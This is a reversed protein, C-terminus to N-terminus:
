DGHAAVEEYSGDHVPVLSRGSLRWFFVGMWLGGIGVLATFDALHPAPSKPNFAPVVQWYMDVINSIFLIIAVIAITKSRRTVRRQLLLLFPIAFQCLVLFLAVGGWGGNQRSLYWPIENKLNGTWIILYQDFSLYTWLMVFALLLNGADNWHLPTVFSALTTERSLFTGIFVMLAMATLAGILMFVMGYITSFWHPELSMVWDISAGTLILGWLVLGPGSLRGCRSLLRKDLTDDYQKAWRNLLISFILFFAFYVISREIYSTANLYPHKYQLIPDAAVEEPRDWSYLERLGFLIPIFLVTMLIFTNSGAELLRRVPIGWKGGTLHHTMLLALCGIPIMVWFMYAFFYSRFFQTPNRLGVLTIALGVIGLAFATRQAKAFDVRNTESANM